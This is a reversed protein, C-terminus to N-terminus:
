VFIANLVADRITSTPPLRRFTFFQLAFSSLIHALSFLDTSIRFTSPVALCAESYQPFGGLHCCIILESWIALLCTSSPPTPACPSCPLAQFSSTERTSCQGEALRHRCFSMSFSPIMHTSIPRRLPCDILSSLTGMAHPLNHQCLAVTVLM